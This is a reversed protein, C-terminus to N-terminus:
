KLPIRSSISFLAWMYKCQMGAIDSLNIHLKADIHVNNKDIYISIYLLCEYQQKIIVNYWQLVNYYSILVHWTLGTLYQHQAVKTRKLKFRCARMNILYM